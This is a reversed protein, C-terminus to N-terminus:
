ALDFVIVESDSKSHVVLVSEDSSAAGDGAAMPGGNLEVAGRLVQLWAHRDPQLAHTLQQGANLFYRRTRCRIWHISLGCLWCSASSHVISDHWLQPPLEFPHAVCFPLRSQNQQDNPTNKPPHDAYPCFEHPGTPSM